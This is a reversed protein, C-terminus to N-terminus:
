GMWDAPLNHLTQQPLINASPPHPPLTRWSLALLLKGYCWVSFVGFYGQLGGSIRSYPDFDNCSLHQIIRNNIYGVPRLEGHLVILGPGTSIEKRWELLNLCQLTVTYIFLFHIILFNHLHSEHCIWESIKSVEYCLHQLLHHNDIFACM